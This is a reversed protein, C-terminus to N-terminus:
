RVSGKGATQPLARSLAIRDGLWAEVESEVWAVSHSGLSVPQPFCRQHVRLYVSSRSLGTRKLVDPLRLFTHAM